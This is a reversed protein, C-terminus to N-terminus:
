VNLGFLPPEWTGYIGKIVNSIEGITVHRKVSEVVTDMLNEDEECCRSIADLAEQVQIASRGHKIRKLKEEQITLTDPVKFFEVPLAEEEMEYCNVGVIPLEGSEVAQQYRYASDSIERHVWGQEVAHVIGGQQDIIELMASVEQVMNNTLTELYYSGGLPDITHTVRTEHQLIQQTRLATLSSLETPICLAEDYADVHVSQAGGLAASLAQYAARVINNLPQQATLSVGSTQVHFRMAMSRSDEAHFREKMLNAWLRRAARYKAIEEFFDSHSSFFFSLRPAVRKVDYGRNILEEMCAIANAIVFAVEQIATCGAERYNYGAFSIPNWKPVNKICYEIADCSLKFSFRPPLIEPATCIATEMLFDNQSTGALKELPIRREQAVAFYMSQITINGIPQCTVLSTSIKEMPIGDFLISMDELTDIAVGGRGVDAYAMPHTSDFGRLTPYDFVGNIGTAGQSLLFKYRKNTEEPPGFGALQRLTWVRERYMTPHIGRVFPVEGPFGLDRSYDMDGIDAPTYLPKVLLGSLTKFEKLKEKHLAYKEKEWTDYEKRIAKVADANYLDTCKAMPHGGATSLM